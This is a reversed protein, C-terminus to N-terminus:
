STLPRISTLGLRRSVTCCIRACAHIVCPWAVAATRQHIMNVCQGAERTPCSSSFSRPDGFANRVSIKVASFNESAICRCSSSMIEVRSGPVHRTHARLAVQHHSTFSFSSMTLSLVAAIGTLSRCCHYYSSTLKLIM